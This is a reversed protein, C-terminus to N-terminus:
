YPRVNSWMKHLVRDGLSSYGEAHMLIASPKRKEFLKERDLRRTLQIKSRSGLRRISATTLATGCNQLSAASIQILYMFCTSMRQFGAVLSHKRSVLQCQGRKLYALARFGDHKIEFLWDPDSFPQAKRSLTMPQHPFQM